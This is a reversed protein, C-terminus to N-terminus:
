YKFTFRINSLDGDYIKKVNTIKTIENNNKVSWMKMFPLDQILELVLGSNKIINNGNEFNTNKVKNKLETTTM